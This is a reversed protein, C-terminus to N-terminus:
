KCSTAFISTATFSRFIFIYLYFNVDVCICSYRYEGSLGGVINNDSHCALTLFKTSHDNMHYRRQRYHWRRYSSLWEPLDLKDPYFKNDNRIRFSEDWYKSSIFIYASVGTIIMLYTTRLRKM